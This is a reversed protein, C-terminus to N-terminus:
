TNTEWDRDVVSAWGPKGLTQPTTDNVDTEYNLSPNTDISFSTIEDGDIYLRMRNGATANTSDFVYFLHYFKSTDEFTRNTKIRGETGSGNYHQIDITNDTDFYIYDYKTSSASDSASFIYQVAGTLNGRKIWASFTWTRRDGGSSPTRALSPSDGDNFICSNDITGNDTFPVFKGVRQGGGNGEYIIPFFYEEGNPITPTAM